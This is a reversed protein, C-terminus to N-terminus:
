FSTYPEDPTQREPGPGREVDQDLDDPDRRSPEDPRERRSDGPLSQDKDSRPATQSQTQSQSQGYQTQFQQAM